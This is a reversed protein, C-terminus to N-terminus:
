FRAEPSIKYTQIGPLKKVIKLEGLFSATLLSTRSYLAQGLIPLRTGTSLLLM